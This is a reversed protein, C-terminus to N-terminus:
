NDGPVEIREISKNIRNTNMASPHRADLTVPLDGGRLAQEKIAVQEYARKRDSLKAKDTLQKPRMMLVLGEVNIEGPANKPMFMGNFQNDFDDQHVPTWGKREFESRHQPVGQGLVSDTVWMASMGDPILDSSIRLRDPTDEANADVTEWNPAARMKLKSSTPERKAEREIVPEYRIKPPRGRRPKQVEPTDNM